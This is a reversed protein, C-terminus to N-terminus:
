VHRFFLIIAFRWTEMMPSFIDLIYSRLYYLYINLTNFIDIQENFKNTCEYVYLIVIIQVILLTCVNQQYLRMLVSQTMILSFYICYSLINNKINSVSLLTEIFIYYALLLSLWNFFINSSKPPNSFVFLIHTLLCTRLELGGWFWVKFVVFTIVNKM